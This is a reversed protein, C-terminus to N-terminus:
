FAFRTLEPCVFNGRPRTEKALAEHVELVPVDGLETRALAFAQVVPSLGTRATATLVRVGNRRVFGREDIAVGRRPLGKRAAAM